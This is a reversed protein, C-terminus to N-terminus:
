IMAKHPSSQDIIINLVEIPILNKDEIPFEVEKM